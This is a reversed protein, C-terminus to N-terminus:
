FALCARVQNDSDESGWMWDAYVYNLFVFYADVGPRSESSSWYGAYEPLATGRATTITTNLGPYSEDNGGNAKFMQKWQDQSPLCWKAGTIATKAGCTSKATSWNMSGEDALAIALGHTYGAVGTEIGVYAIMAVRSKTCAADANYTHIHGDTCILKGVDGATANAAMTYAAAAAKKVAKVSKVKKTGSYKVSVATNAAVGELPLAKYEGSGAKGQWSTADETGEKVSDKYTTQAMAGTAVAALLVLMSLVKNKM